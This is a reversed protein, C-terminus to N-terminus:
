FNGAEYIASDNKKRKKFLALKFCRYIHTNYIHTYIYERMYIDMRVKNESNIKQIKFIEKKEYIYGNVKDKM